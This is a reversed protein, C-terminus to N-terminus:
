QFHGRTFSVQSRHFLKLLNMTHVTLLIMITSELREKQFEMQISGKM